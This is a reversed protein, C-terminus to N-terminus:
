NANEMYNLKYNGSFIRICYKSDFNSQKDFLVFHGPRDQEDM